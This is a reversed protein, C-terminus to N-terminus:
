SKGNMVSFQGEGDDHVKAIQGAGRVNEFQAGGCFQIGAVDGGGKAVGLQDEPQGVGDGGLREEDGAENTAPHDAIPNLREPFTEGRAPPRIFLKFSKFLPEGGNVKESGSVASMAG